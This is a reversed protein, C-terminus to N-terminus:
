AIRGSFIVCKLFGRLAVRQVTMHSVGAEKALSRTSWHTANRPKKSLTKKVIAEAKASSVRPKRGPRSADQGVCDIGRAEFRKRLSIVAQRSLGVEEAITSNPEGSAALLLARARRAFKQPTKGARVLSQLRRRDSRSLELPPAPRNM